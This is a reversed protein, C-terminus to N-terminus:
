LTEIGPIEATEKSKIATKITDLAEEISIDTRNGDRDTTTNSLNEVLWELSITRPDDEAEAPWPLSNRRSTANNAVGLSEEWAIANPIFLDKEYISPKKQEAKWTRVNPPQLGITPQTPSRVYLGESLGLDNNLISLQYFQFGEDSYQEARGSAPSDSHSGYSVSHLILTSLSTEDSQPTSDSGDRSHNSCSLPLIFPDSISIARDQSRIYQFTFVTALTTFRSYLLVKTCM